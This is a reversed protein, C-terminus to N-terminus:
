RWRLNPLGKNSTNGTPSFFLLETQAHKAHVSPAQRCSKKYATLQLNSQQAKKTKQKKKELSFLSLKSFLM